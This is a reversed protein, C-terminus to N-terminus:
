FLSVLAESFLRAIASRPIHPITKRFQSARRTHKGSRYEAGEETELSRTRCPLCMIEFHFSPRSDYADASNRMRTDGYIPHQFVTSLGVQKFLPLVNM